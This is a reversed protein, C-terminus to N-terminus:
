KTDRILEKVSKENTAGQDCISAVVIFGIDRLRRVINVYM